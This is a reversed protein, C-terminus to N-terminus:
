TLASGGPSQTDAIRFLRRNEKAADDANWYTRLAQIIVIPTSIATYALIAVIAWRWSHPTQSWLTSYVGVLAALTLAVHGLWLWAHKGRPRSRPAM